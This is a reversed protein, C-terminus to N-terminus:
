NQYDNVLEPARSDSLKPWSKLFDISEMENLDQQRIGYTLKWKDRVENWNSSDRSLYTKFALLTSKDVESVLASNSRFHETSSLKDSDNNETDAITLKHKKSRRNKYKAYLKGSPNKRGNRPIFYYEEVAKENPFIGVIENILVPFDHARLTVNSSIVEEVIINILENRQKKKWAFLKERFEMRLGLPPIAEKM